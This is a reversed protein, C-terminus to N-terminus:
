RTKPTSASHTPAERAVKKRKVQSESEPGGAMPHRCSDRESMTGHLCAHVLALLFLDVLALRNAGRLTHKRPKNGTELSLAFECGGVCAARRALCGSGDAAKHLQVLEGAEAAVLSALRLSLLM